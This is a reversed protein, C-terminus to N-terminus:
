RPLVCLNFGSTTRYPYTLGRRFYLHTNRPFALPTGDKACFNRLAYGDHEWEMVLHVDDYFPSYEGGKPLLVWKRLGSSGDSSMVKELDVEWTLRLFRFNDATSIGKCVFGLKAGFTGHREFVRLVSAPVWYALARNPLSALARLDITPISQSKIALRLAESKNEHRIGRFAVLGGPIKQAELVYMAVEVMADFVGYGLDTLVDPSAHDETILAQIFVRNIESAGAKGL